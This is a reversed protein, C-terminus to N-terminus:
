ISINYKAIDIDANHMIEESTLQRNYIRIQYITGNAVYSTDYTSDSRAYKGIVSNTYQNNWSSTSGNGKSEKNFYNHANSLSHTFITNIGGVEKTAQNRGGHWAVRGSTLMYCFRNNQGQWFVADWNITKIRKYVIELTGVSYGVNVYSNGILLSDNLLVGGDSTSSASLSATYKVGGIRDVWETGDFDAGDLHFVLGRKIYDNPDQGSEGMMLMRRFESM